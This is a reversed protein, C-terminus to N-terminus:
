KSEEMKIMHDIWQLRGDRFDNKTMKLFVERHHKDLWIEYTLCKKLHRSIRSAFNGGGTIGLAHCMFRAEGSEILPRAKRLAKSFETM